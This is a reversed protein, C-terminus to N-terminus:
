LDPTTRPRTSAWASISWVAVAIPFGNELARLQELKESEEAAHSAYSRVAEPIRHSLRLDGPAASVEGQALRGTL